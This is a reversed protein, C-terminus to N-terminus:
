NLDGKDYAAVCGEGLVCTFTGKFFLESLAKILFFLLGSVSRYLGSGRVHVSCDNSTIVSSKFLFIKNHTQSLFVQWSHSTLLM